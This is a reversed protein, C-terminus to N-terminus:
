YHWLLQGDSFETPVFRAAFSSCNSIFVTDYGANHLIHFALPYNQFHPVYQSIHWACIHSLHLDVKSRFRILGANPPVIPQHKKLLDSASASHLRYKLSVTNARYM